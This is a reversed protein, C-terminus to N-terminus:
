QEPLPEVSQLLLYRSGFRVPGRVRVHAGAALRAVFEKPGHVAFTRLRLETLAKSTSAGSTPFRLDDVAFEIPREDLRLKIVERPKPCATAPMVCGDLEITPPVSGMRAPAATAVLLSAVLATRSLLLMGHRLLVVRRAGSHCGEIKVRPQAV